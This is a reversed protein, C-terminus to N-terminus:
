QENVGSNSAAIGQIQRQILRRIEESNGVGEMREGNIFVTPKARVRHERAFAVDKEIQDATRREKVCEEYQRVSVDTRERLMEILKENLNNLTLDAQHMFLFDHVNWFLRCSVGGKAIPKM